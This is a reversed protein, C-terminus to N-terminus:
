ATRIGTGNRFRAHELLHTAADRIDAAMAERARSADKAALADVVQQHTDVDLIESAKFGTGEVLKRLLPGAQLWLTEVLFLLHANGCHRYVSFKFDFNAKLYRDIDAARAAETRERCQLRITRLHNGNLRPAALETVTGELAIRAETLSSFADATLLPVEVSGNPLVELARLAQLRQFAARVPMPSTGLQEAVKRYTLKQGPEFHGSMLADVIQRYVQEQMPVPAEIATLASTKKIAM